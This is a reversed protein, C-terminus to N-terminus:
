KTGPSVVDVYRPDKRLKTLRPDRLSAKTEHFGLAVAKAVHELAENTRGLSDLAAAIDLEAETSWPEAMAFVRFAALAKEAKADEEYLHGLYHYGVGRYPYDCQLTELPELLMDGWRNRLGLFVVFDLASLNAPDSELTAQASLFSYGVFGQEMFIRGEFLKANLAVRDPDRPDPRSDKEACFPSDAWPLPLAEAAAMIRRKEEDGPGLRGLLPAGMSALGAAWSPVPTIPKQEAPDVALDFAELRAGQVIKRNGEIVAFLPSWGYADLPMVAEAYLRREGPATSEGGRGAKAHRSGKKDKATTEKAAPEDALFRSLGVGDLGTPVPVGALMLITPALDVLSVPEDVVRGRATGASSPAILLPVRITTEYLYVGHGEEKHDDLGEGHSGAVIYSPQAGRGRLSGVLAGVAGDVQLIEGDYPTPPPTADKQAAPPAYDFHPDHMNLWLFFPRDAPLADFAVLAAEVVESARREMSVEIGRKRIGEIADDFRDFGRNLGSTTDLHETGVVAVTSWGAKRLRAALTEIGDALRGGLDQRLGLRSPFLGTLVSATSPVTSASTAYARQFRTGSQALADLGPTAHAGASYCGLHDARLSDITVLVIGNRPHAPPPPTPADDALAPPIAAAALTLGALLLLVFPRGAIFRV